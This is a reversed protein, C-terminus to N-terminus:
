QHQRGHGNGWAARAEHRSGAARWQDIPSVAEATLHRSGPVGILALDALPVTCGVTATVVGGPRLGDTDLALTPHQCTLQRTALTDTVAATADHQADTLIRALSAARAAAHAADDLDLQASVLRGCLVVMLLLGILLPALLAVEVTASGDDSRSSGKTRRRWFRPIATAMM